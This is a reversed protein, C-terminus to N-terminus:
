AKTSPSDEVKVNQGTATNCAAAIGDIAKDYAEGATAYEDASQAAGMASLAAALNEGATLVEPKVETQKQKRLDAAAGNVLARMGDLDLTDSAMKADLDHNQQLTFECFTGSAGGHGAYAHGAAFGGGVLLVVAGGVFQRVSFM